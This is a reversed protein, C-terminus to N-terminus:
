EPQPDLVNGHRRRKFSLLKAFIRQGFTNMALGAIVLIASLLKWSELPEDLILASCLMAVIPCLLAFPSVMAFSHRSLLWSWCSYGFYTSAYTIYALSLFTSIKLREPHMLLTLPSELIFALVTLPICAIFSSWVILSFMNVDKLKTSILNGFGWCLSALLILSFGILSFQGEHHMFLIAIGTLAILAGAMQWISVTQRLFIWALFIAFFVRLQSILAAMGPAVGAAIGAFLLTFQLAFTMLGYGLIYVIRTKPRPVFFLAPFAALFFRLACLTITPIEELSTKVMIFNFGWASAVLIALFLSAAPLSSPTTTM